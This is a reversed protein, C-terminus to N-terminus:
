NHRYVLHRLIHTTKGVYYYMRFNSLILFTKSFFYKLYNGIYKYKFVNTNLLIQLQM